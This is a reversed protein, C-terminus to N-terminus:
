HLFANQLFMKDRSILIIFKEFTSARARLLLIEQERPAYFSAAKMTISCNLKHLLCFLFFNVTTSKGYVAAKPADLHTQQVTGQLLFAFLTIVSRM